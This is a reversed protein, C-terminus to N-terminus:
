KLRFVNKRKSYDDAVETKSGKSSLVNLAENIRGADKQDDFFHLSGDRLVVYFQKWRRFCLDCVRLTTKRNLSTECYSNQM